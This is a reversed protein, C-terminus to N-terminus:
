NWYAVGFTKLDAQLCDPWSRLDGSLYSISLIARIRDAATQTGRMASTVNEAQALTLFPLYYAVACHASIVSASDGLQGGATACLRDIGTPITPSGGANARGFLTTSTQASTKHGSVRHFRAVLSYATEGPLWQVPLPSEFLRM